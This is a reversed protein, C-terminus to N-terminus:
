PEWRGLIVDTPSLKYPDLITVFDSDYLLVWMRIYSMGTVGIRYFAFDMEQVM